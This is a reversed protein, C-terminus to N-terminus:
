AASRLGAGEEQAALAALLRDRLAYYEPHELVAGRERPREFPVHFVAALPNGLVHPSMQELREEGGLGGAHADTQANALRNHLVVAAPDLGQDVAM